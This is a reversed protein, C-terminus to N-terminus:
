VLSNDADVIVRLACGLMVFLLCYLIFYLIVDSLIYPASVAGGVFTMPTFTVCVYLFLM